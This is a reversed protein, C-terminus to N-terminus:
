AHSGLMLLLSVLKTVYVKRGLVSFQCYGRPLILAISPLLQLMNPSHRNPTHQM